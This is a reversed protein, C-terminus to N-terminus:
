LQDADLVCLELVKDNSDAEAIDKMAKEMYCPTAVSGRTNALDRAIETARASVRQFENDADNYHSSDETSIKINEIKKM